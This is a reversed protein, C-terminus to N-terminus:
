KNKQEKWLAAAASMTMGERVKQGVFLQYANPARKGQRASGKKSPATETPTPVPAPPPTPEPAATKRRTVRKKEGTAVLEAPEESKVVTKQAPPEEATKKTRPKRTKKEPEVPAATTTASSKKLNPVEPCNKKKLHRIVQKKDGMKDRLGAPSVYPCAKEEVVKKYIVDPEDYSSYSSSSDSSDSMYSSEESESESQPTPPRRGRGSSRGGGGAAVGRGRSPESYQAPSYNQVPASHAQQLQSLIRLANPSNIGYMKCAKPFKHVPLLRGPM